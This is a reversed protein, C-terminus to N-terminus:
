AGCQQTCKCCRREAGVHTHREGDPLGSEISLDVNAVNWPRGHDIRLGDDDYTRRRINRGRRDVQVYRWPMFLVPALVARFVIGAASGDVEYTMIPVVILVDRAVSMLTILIVVTPLPTSVTFAMVVIVPTTM